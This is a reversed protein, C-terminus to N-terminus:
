GKTIKLLYLLEDLLKEKVWAKQKSDIVEGLGDLVNPNKMKLNEVFTILDAFYEVMDKDTREIIVAENIPWSNKLFFWADFLDRNVLKKRDTIAVLKHAVMCDQTMLRVPLGYYSQIEYTDATFTRTSIEVKVNYDEDSYSLLFHLTNFKQWQDKITGYQALISEIQEFVFSSEKM